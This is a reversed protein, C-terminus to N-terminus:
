TTPNYCSSTTVTLWYLAGCAHFFMEFGNRGELVPTRVSKALAHGRPAAPQDELSSAAFASVSQNGSQPHSPM